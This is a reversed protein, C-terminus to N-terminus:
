HWSGGLAKILRVANLLRQGHLQVSQRRYNLATQEAIILELHNALGAQYRARVISLASTASDAASAASGAAKELAASGSLGDQVEQMAVLVSQRYSAVSQRYGAEAFAQTAQRRGGDLLTQSFSGGVAWLMSPASFLNALQNADSGLLTTLNLTPFYASRALGIQANAGAMAREYAAIDPRRQLLDAPQEPGIAPLKVPTLDAKLSFNPAPMGILTAIAHEFRARQDILLTLQTQTTASLAQQQKVDLASAAGLEHHIRVYDAGKTQAALTQTLLDIEADTARLSFYQIALEATLILRTNEVDAAIQEATANAAAAQQRVRGFLDLEYSVSLASNFDSQVVSVNTGAYNALPREASTKNRVAGAQLGIRPFFASNAIDSQARAQALRAQAGAMGQGDRLIQQELTTLQPDAFIEWWAGKREADRPAAVQWGPAIQWATPLTIEPRRYAADGSCASLLFANLILFTRFVSARKFAHQVKGHLSSSRLRM